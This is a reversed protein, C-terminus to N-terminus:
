TGVRSFVADINLFSALINLFFIRCVKHKELQEVIRDATQPNDALRFLNQIKESEFREYVTSIIKRWNRVQKKDTGDNKSEIRVDLFAELEALDDM